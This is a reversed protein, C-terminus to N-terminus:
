RSVIHPIRGERIDVAFKEESTKLRKFWNKEQPYLRMISRRERETLGGWVGFIANSSLADALCEIRVSCSYCVKRVQQQASGRVFLSEPDVDTCAAKASWEQHAYIATAM